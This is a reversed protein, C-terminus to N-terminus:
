RELFTSVRTVFVFLRMNKENLIWLMSCCEQQRFICIIDIYLKKYKVWDYMLLDYIVIKYKVPNNKDDIISIYGNLGANTQTCSCKSACAFEFKDSRYLKELSSLERERGIFMIEGGAM